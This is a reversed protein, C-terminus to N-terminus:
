RPFREEFRLNAQAIRADLEPSPPEPRPAVFSYGRDCGLCYFEAGPWRFTSVLVEDPCTPCMAVM